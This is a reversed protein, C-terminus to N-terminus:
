VSSLKEFLKEIDVQSALGTGVNMTTATGCAIGYQLATKYDLNESIGFIIGAVMSDGAGVTSKVEVKPPSLKYTQAATVLMAGESGMSVVIIEIDNKKIISKAAKEIDKSQLNKSGCLIGLEERNPKIMFAGASVATQLATGSTDVILKANLGKAIKSIMEFVESSVSKPLSGSVVIYETDTDLLIMKVLSEWENKLLETNPMGFRFQQKSKQDFVVFNEKTENITTLSRYCINENDLLATFFQGNLGAVPFIAKVDAGLRTLVRAVNIGGGGADAILQTCKMKIDPLMEAVSSSKDISPSFTLTVIKAM